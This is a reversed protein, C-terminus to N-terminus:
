GSEYLQLPLRLVACRKANNFNSHKFCCVGHILRRVLRHPQIQAGFVPNDIRILKVSWRRAAWPPKATHVRKMASPSQPLLQLRHQRMHGGAWLPKQVEPIISSNSRHPRRWMMVAAKRVGTRASQRCSSAAHVGVPTGPM